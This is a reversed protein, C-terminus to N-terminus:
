FHETIERKDNEKSGQSKIQVNHWTTREKIKSILDLNSLSALLHM